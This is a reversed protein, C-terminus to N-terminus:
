ARAERQALLSDLVATGARILTSRIQEETQGATSDPLSAFVPQSRREEMAFGADRILRQYDESPQRTELLILHRALLGAPDSPGAINELPMDPRSLDEVKEIFYDVDDFRPRLDEQITPTLGSLSRHIATRGRLRLRCGVARTSTLDDRIEDHRARLADLIAPGLSDADSIDELPLDIQEWRLPALPLLEATPTQGKDITVLWAGHSGPEGPDLGVPSGPYLIMPLSKCLLGPKHIHGLLWAAPSTAKLESTTVPAYRSDSADCDCHLVGVTPIDDSVLPYDALPNTLVHGAPFSWGQFRVSQGDEQELIVEEWRGGHGLLRFEPFQDALRALVEFDHNGSVAIVPIKVEVLQEIGSQLVSFAEYFRNSEDVMDGTLVVADVNLEIASAVIAQWAGRPGLTGAEIGEPIRTPRRGLHVDGTCLIRFPMKRGWENM